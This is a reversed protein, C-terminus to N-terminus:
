GTGYPWLELFGALALWAGAGFGLLTMLMVRRVARDIPLRDARTGVLARLRRRRTAISGHRWTFRSEPIGNLRAVRGLASSMAGAGADTVAGAAGGSLHRAAFADAQWEFRRSVAGLILLVAVLSIGAGGWLAVSEHAGAADLVLASGEGFLLAAGIVSLALWLMHRKRVHAVEHAAVAEVEAETLSELLADTLVIYRLWPTIGIVAGNLMSGHTRWVLFRRLRVRHARALSELEERLEGPPIPVTDWVRTMVPPILAFIAVSGALRIAPAGATALTGGQEAADAFPGLLPLVRDIAESWGLIFVLPVFMIALSNRASALVFRWPGPFAYVPRGEDLARIMLADRLRREIPHALRYTWLLVAFAPVSAILEDLLVPDGVADRVVGLLGLVFVSAFHWLLAAVRTLSIIRWAWSVARARGRRDLSRVCVRVGVWGATGIAIFVSLVLSLRWGAGISGPMLGDAWSGTHSATGELGSGGWLECSARLM